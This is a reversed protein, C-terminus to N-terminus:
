CSFEQLWLVYIVKVTGYEQLLFKTCTQGAELECPLRCAHCHGLKFTCLKIIVWTQILIVGFHSAGRWYKKRVQASRRETYPRQMFGWRTASNGPPGGSFTANLLLQLVFLFNVHANKKQPPPYFIGTSTAKKM